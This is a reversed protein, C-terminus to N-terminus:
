GLRLLLTAPRSRNGARDVAFVSVRHTGTLQPLTVNTQVTTEFLRGDVLVRYNAIGSDRDASRPWAVITDDLAHVLPRSPRRRDLWRFEGARTISFVGRAVYRQPAQALYISRLYIPHFADNPRVLRVVFQTGVPEIWHEGFATPVVLPRDHAFTYTGNREVRRVGALWGLKFKELATFDVAGGGMPSLPDGYEQIRCGRACASRTAHPLGFTHGLEHVFSVDDLVGGDQAMFVEHGVGLGAVNCMRQPLIYAIRRYASVDYGARAAAGQALEGIRGFVSRETQADPCLPADYARLWPTVDIKLRLKGFSAREYFAAAGALDGPADPLPGWTARIVLVRVDGRAEPWRPDSPVAAGTTLAICAALVFIRRM